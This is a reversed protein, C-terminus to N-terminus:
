KGVFVFKELIKQGGILQPAFIMMGGGTTSELSFHLFTVAM